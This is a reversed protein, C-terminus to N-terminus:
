GGGLHHEKEILKVPIGREALALAATMGAIGGGIVLASPTIKVKNGEYPELLSAKAVGAKVLDLAKAMTAEGETQHVWACGERINVMELLHSNLGAEQCASRIPIEHIRPTCAAVVIRNLGTGRIAEQLETLDRRSCLYSMSQSLAVHPLQEAATALSETDLHSAIETGCDCIFVGVKLSDKARSKM